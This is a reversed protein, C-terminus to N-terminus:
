EYSRLVISGALFVAGIGIYFLGCAFTACVSRQRKHIYLKLCEEKLEFTLGRVKKHLKYLLQNNLETVGEIVISDQDALHVLKVKLDPYASQVTNIVQTHLRSLASSSSDKSSPVVRLNLSTM